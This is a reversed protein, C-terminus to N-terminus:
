LGRDKYRFRYCLLLHSLSLWKYTTARKKNSDFWQKEEHKVLKGKNCWHCATTTIISQLRDTLEDAIM